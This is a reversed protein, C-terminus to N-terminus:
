QSAPVSGFLGGLGEAMTPHTLNLDRIATYPLQSNMALQVVPLLEGAEPGFAKPLDNERILSRRGLM